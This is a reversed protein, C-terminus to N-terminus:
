WGCTSGPPLPTAIIMVNTPGACDPTDVGGGTCCSCNWVADILEFTTKWNEPIGSGCETKHMEWVFIGPGPGPACYDPPILKEAYYGTPCTCHDGDGWLAGPPPNVWTDWEFRLQYRCGHCEDEFSVGQKASDLEDCCCLSITIKEGSGCGGQASGCLTVPAPTAWKEHPFDKLSKEYDKWYGGPCGCDGDYVGPYYCFAGGENDPNTGSCFPIGADRTLQVTAGDLPGCNGGLDYFTLCIDGTPPCPCCHSPCTDLRVANDPSCKECCTCCGTPQADNFPENWGPGITISKPM